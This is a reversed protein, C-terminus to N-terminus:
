DIKSASMAILDVKFPFESKKLIRVKEGLTKQVACESGLSIIPLLSFYSSHFRRAGVVFFDRDSKGRKGIFFHQNEDRQNISVDKQRM